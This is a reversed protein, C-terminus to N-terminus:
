IQLVVFRKSLFNQTLKEKTKEYLFSILIKAKLMMELDNKLQSYLAGTM